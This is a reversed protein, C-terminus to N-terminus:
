GCGCVRGTCGCSFLPKRPMQDEIPRKLDFTEGRIEMAELPEDLQGPIKYRPFQEIPFTDTIITMHTAGRAQGDKRWSELTPFDVNIQAM